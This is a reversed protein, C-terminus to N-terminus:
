QCRKALLQSDVFRRNGARLRQVLSRAISVLMKMAASPYIGALAALAGPTFRYASIPELAVVNASRPLRDVLAIEGFFDGDRMEALTIDRGNERHFARVRGRRLIFMSDSEDGETVVAEGAKFTVEEVVSALAELEATNFDAFAKIQALCHETNSAENM